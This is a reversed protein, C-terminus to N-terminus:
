GFIKQKLGFALGTLGVKAHVVPKGKMQAEVNDWVQELLPRDKAGGINM